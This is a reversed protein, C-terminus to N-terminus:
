TTQRGTLARGASCPEIGGPVETNRRLCFILNERTNRSTSGRQMQYVVLVAQLVIGVLLGPPIGHRPRETNETAGLSRRVDPQGLREYFKGKAEDASEAECVLGSPERDLNEAFRFHPM